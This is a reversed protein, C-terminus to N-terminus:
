QLKYTDLTNAGNKVEIHWPSTEPELFQKPIAGDMKPPPEITVIYRGPPAGDDKGFSSVKFTGDRDLRAHCERAPPDKPHLRLFGGPLPQGNALVVQGMVPYTSPASTSGGSYLGWAASGFIYLLALGAAALAGRKWLPWGEEDDYNEPVRERTLQSALMKSMRSRKQEALKKSTEFALQARQATERARLHAQEKRWQREDETEREGTATKDIEKEEALEIQDSEGEESNDPIADDANSSRKERTLDVAAAPPALDARFVASESVLVPVPPEAPRKSPTQRPKSQHNRLAEDRAARVTANDPDLLLAVTYDAVACEYNGRAAHLNGLQGCYVAAHRSDLRTAHALDELAFELQGGKTRLVARHLYARDLRSDLRIAETLDAVAQPANALKKHAVGRLFYTQAGLPELRLAQSFDEVAAAYERQQARISGRALYAQALKPEHRVAEHCDALAEELRGLRGLIKARNLRAVVLAPEIQVAESFDALALDLEGKHMYVQGRSSYAAARSPELRVAQSLDEVAQDLKGLAECSQARRCLVDANEPDHHIAADFDRLAREQNGLQQVLLGREYYAEANTGDLELARSLDAEAQEYKGLERFATGREVLAVANHPDLRLANELDAIAREFEGLAATSQGRRLYTLAALPNLRIAMCYNAIAREHNKQAACVEGLDHYAWAHHPDLRLAESFNVIAADDDQLSALAKGRYYHAVASKPDIEIATTYDDIAEQSRGMLWYVQGRQILALACSPELRLAQSYDALAQAYSGELRHSDGRRLFDSRFAGGSHQETFPEQCSRRIAFGDLAPITAPPLTQRIELLISDVRSVFRHLAAAAGRLEAGVGASKGERCLEAMAGFLDADDEVALRFIEGVLFILLSRDSECQLEFLPGLETYGAQELDATLRLVAPMEALPEALSEANGNDDAVTQPFLDAFELSGTTLLGSKLAAQLSQRVRLRADPGLRDVPGLSVTDLLFRIPQFFEQELDREWFLQAREWFDEGALLIEMAAWARANAQRLARAVHRMCSLLDSGFLSGPGEDGGHLHSDLIRQLALRSLVQVSRM